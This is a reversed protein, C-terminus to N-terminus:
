KRRYGAYSQKCNLGGPATGPSLYTPQASGDLQLTTDGSSATIQWSQPMWQPPLNFPQIRVDSLGIRSFKAALWQADEDDASTGSEPFGGQAM